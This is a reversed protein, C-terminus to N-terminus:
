LLAGDSRAWFREAAATTDKKIDVKSEWGVAAGIESVMEEELGLVAVNQPAYIAIFDKVSRSVGNEPTENNHGVALLPITHRDNGSYWVCIPTAALMYAEEDYPVLVAGPQEESRESTISLIDGLSATGVEGEVLKHVLVGILVASILLVIVFTAFGKRTHLGKMFYELMMQM